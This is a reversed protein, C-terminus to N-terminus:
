REKFNLVRQSTALVLTTNRLATILKKIIPQVAHLYFIPELWLCLLQRELQGKSQEHFNLARQNM